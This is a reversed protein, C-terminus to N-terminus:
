KIVSQTVITIHYTVAHDPAESVATCGRQELAAEHSANIAPDDRPRASLKLHDMRRVAELLQGDYWTVTELGQAPISHALVADPDVILPPDAKGPAVTVGVVHFEGVIVSPSVDHADRDLVNGRAPHVVAIHLARRAWTAIAQRRQVGPLDQALFEELREAHGSVRERLRQTNWEVPDRRDQGALPRDTGVRRQAQGSKKPVVGSSQIFKCPL